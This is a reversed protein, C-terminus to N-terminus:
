QRSREISISQNGMEGATTMKYGQNILTARL